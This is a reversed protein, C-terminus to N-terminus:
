GYSPLIKLEWSARGGRRRADGCQTTVAVLMGGDGASKGLGM